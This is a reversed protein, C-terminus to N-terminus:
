IARKVRFVYFFSREYQKVYSHALIHPYFYFNMKLINYMHITLVLNSLKKLNHLKYERPSLYGLPSHIRINNFWNM